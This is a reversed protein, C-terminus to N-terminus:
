QLTYYEVGSNKSGPNRSSRVTPGHCHHSFTFFQVELHNIRYVCIMTIAATIALRM